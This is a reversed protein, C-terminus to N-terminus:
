MQTTIIFRKMEYSSSPISLESLSARGSIVYWISLADRWIHVTIFALLLTSRTTACM